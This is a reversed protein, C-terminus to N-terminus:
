QVCRVFTTLFKLLIFTGFELCTLIAALSITKENWGYPSKILQRTRSQDHVSPAHIIVNCIHVCM